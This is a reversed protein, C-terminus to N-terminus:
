VTVCGANKRKHVIVASVDDGPIPRGAKGPIKRWTQWVPSCERRVIVYDRAPYRKHLRDMRDIADEARQLLEEEVNWVNGKENANRSRVQYIYAKRAM